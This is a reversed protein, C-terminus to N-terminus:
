LNPQEALSTTVERRGNREAIRMALSAKVDAIAERWGILRLLGYVFFSANITCFGFFLLNGYWFNM